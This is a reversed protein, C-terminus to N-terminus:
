IFYQARFQRLNSHSSRKIEKYTGFKKGEILAAIPPFMGSLNIHLTPIAKCQRGRIRIM